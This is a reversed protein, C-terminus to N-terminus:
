QEQEAKTQLFQKFYENFENAKNIDISCIFEYLELLVELCTSASTKQSMYDYAKMVKSLADADINKLVNGDIDIRVEGKAIRTAEALLLKKFVLPSTEFLNKTDDWKYKDRWATITKTDRGLMQAIREITWKSECYLKEANQIETQSAKKAM